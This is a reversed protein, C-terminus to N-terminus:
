GARTALHAAELAGSLLQPEAGFTFGPHQLLGSKLSVHSIPAIQYKLFTINQSFLTHNTITTSPKYGLM